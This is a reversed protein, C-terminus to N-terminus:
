YDISIFDSKTISPKFLDLLEMPTKRIMSNAFSTEKEGLIISTNLRIPFVRFDLIEQCIKKFINLIKKVKAFGKM